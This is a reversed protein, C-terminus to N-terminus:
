GYETANCRTCSLTYLVPKSESHVPAKCSTVWCRRQLCCYALRRATSGGQALAKHRPPLRTALPLMWTTWRCQGELTATVHITRVQAPTKLTALVGGVDHRVLQHILQCCDPIGRVVRVDAECWKAVEQASSNLCHHQCGANGHHTCLLQCTHRTSCDTLSRKLLTSQHLAHQHHCYYATPMHKVDTRSCGTVCLWSQGMEEQICTVVRM